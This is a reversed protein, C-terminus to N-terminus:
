KRPIARLIGHKDTPQLTFSQLVSAVLLFVEIKALSKGVCDRKGMSFPVPGDVTLKEGYDGLFRNLDFKSPNPFTEPDNNISWLNGVIISRKPIRYGQITTEEFNSYHTTNYFAQATRFLEQIFAELYPLKPRDLMSPLREKGVVSDLEKQIKKQEEPHKSAETLLSSVSEGVSDTGEMTMNMSIGLLRDMTFSSKELEGRERLNKMELLYTDVYDRLNNPDFTRIHDDIIEQVVNKLVSRAERVEAGWPLYEISVRFPLGVLMFRQDAFVAILDHAAKALKPFIPGYKEFKRAFMIQTIISNVAYTVHFNIDTPQGETKELDSKLIRIEEHIKGEIELKGFGFNKVTQLFYRRHESWSPGEEQTVGLGDSIWELLNSELPRGIFEKSRNVLVEKILKPGHLIVFLKGGVTRFSFINGYKKALNAFDIHCQTTLFPYYGFYPIGWPGPPLNSFSKWFRFLFWALGLVLVPRILHIFLYHDLLAM